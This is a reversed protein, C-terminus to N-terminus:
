ACRSGPSMLSSLPTRPDLLTWVSSQPVTSTQLFSVLRVGSDSDPLSHLSQLGRHSRWTGLLGPRLYPNPTRRTMARKRVHPVRLTRLGPGCGSQAVAWTAVTTADADSAAPEQTRHVRMSSTRRLLNLVLRGRLSTAAFDRALGADDDDWHVLIKVDSGLHPRIEAVYRPLPEFVAWIVSPGDSKIEGMCKVFELSPPPLGVPHRFPSAGVWMDGDAPAM